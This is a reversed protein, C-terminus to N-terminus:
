WWTWAGCRQWILGGKDGKMGDEMEVVWWMLRGFETEDWGLSFTSSAAALGVREMLPLGLEQDDTQVGPM